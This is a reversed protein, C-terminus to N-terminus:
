IFEASMAIGVVRLTHKRGNLIAQFSSGIQFKNALAFARNVVVEDRAQPLPKRGQRLLLRNLTLPGHDPLSLVLGTAPKARRALDLLVYKRLQTQVAAVGDIAAIQAALHNPARVASAFVDAFGYREYYTARTETLSAHTGKFIVLTAVGAAMVLAIALVQSWTRLLDRLLKKNLSTMM